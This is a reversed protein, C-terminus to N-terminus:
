TITNKVIICSYTDLAKSVRKNSDLNLRVHEGKQKINTLSSNRHDACMQPRHEGVYFALYDENDIDEPKFSLFSANNDTKIIQAEVARFSDAPLVDISLANAISIGAILVSCLSAILSTKILNTM